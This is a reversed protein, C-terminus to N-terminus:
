QLPLIVVILLILFLLIAHILIFSLVHKHASTQIMKVALSVQKGLFAMAVFHILAYVVFAIKLIIYIAFNYDINTM